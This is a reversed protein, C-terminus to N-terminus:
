LASRSQVDQEVDSRTFCGTRGGRRSGGHTGSMPFEMLVTTGIGNRGPTFEIRDSLDTMLPLGAGLSTSETGCGYDDIRVTLWEGDTAAALSVDGVQEAPYAHRVANTVAESVALALREREGARMGHEAPFARVWRRAEGIAAITARQNLRAMAVVSSDSDM